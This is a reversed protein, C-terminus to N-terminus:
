VLVCAVQHDPEVERFVVEGEWCRSTAYRCREQFRCGPPIDVPSPVEGELLIEERQALPDPVPISSLLAQTYPHGPHDFVLGTRGMEVLKGLYMVAVRECTYRVIGLDHSIVLYAVGTRRQLDMLLDAITVKVSVDLASTPEDLV